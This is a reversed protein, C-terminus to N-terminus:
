YTMLNYDSLTIEEIPSDEDNIIYPDKLFFAISGLSSSYFFNENEEYELDPYDKKLTKLLSGIGIKGKLKGKYENLVSLQCVKGELLNINIILSDLVYIKLFFYHM